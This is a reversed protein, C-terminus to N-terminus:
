ESVGISPIDRHINIGYSYVPLKIWDAARQKRHIAIGKAIQEANINEDFRWQWGMVDPYGIGAYSLDKSVFWAQAAGLYLQTVWIKEGNPHRIAMEHISIRNQFDILRTLVDLAIQLKETTELTDNNLEGVNKWSTLLPPPLQVQLSLLQKNIKKLQATLQEQSAELQSQLSILETRKETLESHNQQRNQHATNLQQYEIELLQITQEMSSEQQIGDITLQSIQREIQLWRQVLQELENVPSNHSSATLRNIDAPTSNANFAFTSLCVMIFFANIAYISCPLLQNIKKCLNKHM